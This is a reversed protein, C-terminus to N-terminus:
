AVSVTFGPRAPVRVGLWLALVRAAKLSCRLGGFFNTEMAQRFVGMPVEEVSGRADVGANNVLVDIRGNEPQEAILSEEEVAVPEVDHLRGLRRLRSNLRPHNYIKGAPVIRIRGAQRRVLGLRGIDDDYKPGFVLGPVQTWAGSAALPNAKASSSWPM